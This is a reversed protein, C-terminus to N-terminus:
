KSEKDFSLVTLNPKFIDIVNHPTGDLLYSYMEQLEEFISGKEVNDNAPNEM